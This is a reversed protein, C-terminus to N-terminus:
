DDAEGGRGLLGSVARAVVERPALVYRDLVVMGVAIALFAGGGLVDGNSLLIVGLLGV